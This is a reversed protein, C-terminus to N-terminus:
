FADIRDRDIAARLRARNPPYCVLDVSVGLLEGVREDLTFYDWGLRMDPRLQIALDLDSEASAVDRATLGFIAAHEIGM